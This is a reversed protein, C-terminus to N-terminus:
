ADGYPLQRRQWLLENDSIVCEARHESRLWGLYSAITSYNLLYRVPDPVEIGLSSCVRRLVESMGTAPELASLVADTVRELARQNLGALELPDSPVGHGPVAIRAGAAALRDISLLQSGPDYSFPLPYKQLLAEGFLADAAILVDGVLVALQSRDHGAAEIFRLTVGEIEIEGPELEQHVPSAPGHTWKQLLEPLPNAGHFLGLPQLLPNRIVVAAERPAYVRADPLRNLLWANGGFHDSHAHTNIIAAPELGLQRSAKLLRRAYDKDQGTDILLSKGDRAEVVFTNVAGPVYWIGDGVKIHESAAM